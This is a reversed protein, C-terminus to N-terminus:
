LNISLHISSLYIVFLYTYISSLHPLSLHTM